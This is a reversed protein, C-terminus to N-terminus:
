NCVLQPVQRKVTKRRAVTNGLQNGLQNRAM